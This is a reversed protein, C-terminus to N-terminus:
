SSRRAANTLAIAADLSTRGLCSMGKYPGSIFAAKWHRPEIRRLVWHSNEPGMIKFWMRARALPKETPQTM